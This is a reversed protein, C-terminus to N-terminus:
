LEIGEIKVRLNDKKREVWGKKKLEHKSYLKPTLFKSGMSLLIYHFTSMEYENTYILPLGHCLTHLVRICTIQKM